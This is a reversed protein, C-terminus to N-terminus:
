RAHRRIIDLIANADWPKVVHDDAGQKKGWFKDSASGKSTVLIIPIASTTPNNKLERCLEFGNGDPMVVDLLVLSPRLQEVRSLVDAARDCYAVMHGTSSVLRGLAERETKADDVVLVTGM